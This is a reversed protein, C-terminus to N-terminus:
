LVHLITTVIVAVIILGLIQNQCVGTVFLVSIQQLRSEYTSRYVDRQIKHQKSKSTETKCLHM